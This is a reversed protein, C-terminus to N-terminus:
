QHHVGAKDFKVVAQVTVAVTHLYRKIKEPTMPSM